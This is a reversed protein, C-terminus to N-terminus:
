KNNTPDFNMMYNTESFRHSGYQKGGDTCPTNPAGAQKNINQHPCDEGSSGLESVRNKSTWPKQRWSSLNYITAM